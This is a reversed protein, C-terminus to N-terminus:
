VDMRLFIQQAITIINKRESFSVNSLAIHYFLGGTKYATHEDYYTEASVLLNAIKGAFQDNRGYGYWYDQFHKDDDYDLGTFELFDYIELFDIVALEDSSNVIRSFEVELATRQLNVCGSLVIIFFLCGSLTKKSYQSSM